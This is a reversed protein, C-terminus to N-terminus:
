SLPGCDPFKKLRNHSLNLYQLKKTKLKADEIINHSVDLTKLNFFQNVEEIM